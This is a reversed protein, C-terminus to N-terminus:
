SSGVQRKFFALNEKKILHYGLLSIIIILAVWKWNNRKHDPEYNGIFILHAWYTPIKFRPDIDSNHLLDIKAQQLAKDKSLGNDLYYHLRQLLFSSSKDEAKWLSTILNPCGAYAFARSLSMLGEGKILKGTGTECASLIILDTSDLQLNYIEEAYLKYDNQIPNFSIFSQFPQTNDVSAHTALHIIGYHNAFNLFNTKIANSDLFTKGSIDAVEEASAPLRSLTSGSTDVYSSSVFPAFALKGTAYSNVKETEFLSTAYQYQVSFKEILYSQKEDQLAEFPVYNLEDDPIIILKKMRLLKSQIPAILSQFLNLSSSTGTYTQGSTTNQLADKFSQIEAFFSKNILIRRYEFQTATILLILLENESLHYSLLASTNDLKRQLENISPIQGIARKQKWEPNSNVQEETKGLEIENDRISINLKSLQSSDTTQAAKLSLRTIKNKLLLQNEFLQAIESDTNKLARAEINFSLVSAKNRQDFFYAEELYNRKKTLEYLTLSIDIPKSHVTYKIKGLFLRAEDSTYTKEVYDALKFASRYADLSAELVAIDKEQQYLNELVDAKATLSNFLNIYSFIGSFLEPNKYINVDTFSNSFQIIAQQYQAAAEKNNEQRALEDAQYKLILGYSINKKHGNWKLNEALAKHFYLDASDTENLATYAAGINYYLEITKKDALYNVRKFNDLAAPYDKQKLHIIGLNHNIENTYINYALINEYISQAKNFEELKVSLSAINIKYNVLLTKEAPNNEHLLGIAKEFYNRAQQYNGIEYYMVGLRNYLRESQHLPKAYRDNINEAKKYYLLASDFENQSYCIAGTFLLPAFLFSDAIKPLQQKLSIAQLYNRKAAETSDFYYQIFGAKSHIFFSLSDFTPKSILQNFKFLSERYLKDAQLQKQENDGAQAAIKEAEKFLQDAEAYSKLSATSLGIQQNQSFCFVLIGLAFVALFLKYM